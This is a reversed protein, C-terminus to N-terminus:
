YISFKENVTLWQSSVTTENFNRSYNLTSFLLITVYDYNLFYDRM